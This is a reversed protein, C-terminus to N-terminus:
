DKDFFINKHINEKREINLIIQYVFDNKNIKIKKELFNIISNM